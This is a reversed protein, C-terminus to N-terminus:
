ETPEEEGGEPNTPPTVELAAELAAVRAILAELDSQLAKSALSTNISELQGNINEIATKNAGVQTNVPDFATQEVKAGIASTLEGIKTDYTTQDVKGSIAGNLESKAASVATDAYSNSSTLVATDAAKYADKGSELADVKNSLAEVTTKDAKTDNLANVGTAEDNVIGKLTAVDSNLLLVSASAASANTLASTIKDANEGVAITLTDIDEQLGADVGKLAKIELSQASISSANADIDTRFGETVVVRETLESVTQNTTDIRESLSTEKSAVNEITEYTTDIQNGNGDYIAAIFKEVGNLILKTFKDM